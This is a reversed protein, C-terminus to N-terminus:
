EKTKKDPKKELAEKVKIAHVTYINPAYEDVIKMLWSHQEDELEIADLAGEVVEIVKHAQISDNMTLKGPPLALVLTKILDRTTASPENPRIHMPRGDISIIEKQVAIRKM